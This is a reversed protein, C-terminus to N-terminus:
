MSPDRAGLFETGLRERGPISLMEIQRLGDPHKCVSFQSQCKNSLHQAHAHVIQGRRMQAWPPTDTFCHVSMPLIFFIFSQISDQNGYAGQAFLHPPPGLRIYSCPSYRSPDGLYTFKDWQVSVNSYTNQIQHPITLVKWGVWWCPEM